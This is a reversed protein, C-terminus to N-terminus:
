NEKLLLLIRGSELLDIERDLWQKFDSSNPDDAHGKINLTFYSHIV